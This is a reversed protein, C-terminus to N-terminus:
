VDFYLYGQNGYKLQNEQVNPVLGPENEPVVM